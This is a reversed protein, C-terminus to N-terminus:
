TTSISSRATSHRGKAATKGHVLLIGVGAEKLMYETRDPPNEPPLPLYGLGARIVALIGISMAFSREVMLAIVTNPKAGAARLRNALHEVKDALEAYTLSPKGFTRDHECLM